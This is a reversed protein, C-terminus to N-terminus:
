SCPVATAEKVLAEKGSLYQSMLDDVADRSEIPPMLGGFLNVSNYGYEGYEKCDPSSPSDHTVSMVTDTASVNGLYSDHYHVGFYMDGLNGIPTAVIFLTGTM